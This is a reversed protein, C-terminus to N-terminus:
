LNLNGLLYALLASAVGAWGLHWRPAGIGRAALGCLVIALVVLVIVLVNM